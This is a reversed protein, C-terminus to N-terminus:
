PLCNECKEQRPGRWARRLLNIIKKSSSKGPGKGMLVGQARLAILMLNRRTVDIIQLVSHDQSNSVHDCSWWSRGMLKQLFHMPAVLSFEFKSRLTQLTLCSLGPSGSPVKKRARLVQMAKQKCQQKSFFIRGSGWFLNAFLCPYCMYVQIPRQSLDGSFFWSQGNVGFYRDVEM